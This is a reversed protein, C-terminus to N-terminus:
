VLVASPVTQGSRACVIVCYVAHLSCPSRVVTFCTITCMGCGDTSATRQYRCLCEYSGPSNKCEFKASPCVSLTVCEDIDAVCVFSAANRTINLPSIDFQLAAHDIGTCDYGNGTFGPKCTCTYNQKTTKCHADKHCPPPFPPSCMDSLIYLWFCCLLDYHM